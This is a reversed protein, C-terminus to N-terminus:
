ELTARQLECRVLVDFGNSKMTQPLPLRCTVYGSATIEAVYASSVVERITSIVSRDVSTLLVADIDVVDDNDTSGSAVAEASARKLIRCEASKVGNGGEDIVEFRVRVTDNKTYSAYPAVLSFTILSIGLMLVIMSTLGYRRNYVARGITVLAICVGTVGIIHLDFWGWLFFVLPVVASAIAVLLFPPCEVGRFLVADGKVLRRHPRDKMANMGPDDDAPQNEQIKAAHGV